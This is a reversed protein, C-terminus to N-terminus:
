VEIYFPEFRTNIKTEKQQQYAKVSKIMINENVFFGNEPYTYQIYMGRKQCIQRARHSIKIDPTQDAIIGPQALFVQGM